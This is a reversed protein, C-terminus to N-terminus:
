PTRNDIRSRSSSEDWNVPPSRLVGGPLALDDVQLGPRHSSTQPSWSRPPDFSTIHFPLWIGVPTRVRGRMGVSLTGDVPEVASVSPGWLPWSGTRSILAWAEDPTARVFRRAALTV